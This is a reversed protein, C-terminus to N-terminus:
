DIASDEISVRTCVVIATLPSIRPELWDWSAWGTMTRQSRRGPKRSACASRITSSNCHIVRFETYSIQLIQSRICQGAARRECDDKNEKCQLITIDVNVPPTITPWRKMFRALWKSADSLELNSLIPAPHYGTGSPSIEEFGGKYSRISVKPKFLPNQVRAQPTENSPGMTRM